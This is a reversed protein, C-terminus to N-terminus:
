SKLEMKISDLESEYHWYYAGAVGKLLYGYLVFARDLQKEQQRDTQRLRM